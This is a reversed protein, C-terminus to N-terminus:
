PIFLCTGNTKLFPSLFCRSFFYHVRGKEHVNRIEDDDDKEQDDKVGVSSVLHSALEELFPSSISHSLQNNAKKKVKEKRKKLFLHLQPPHHRPAFTFLAHHHHDFKVVM